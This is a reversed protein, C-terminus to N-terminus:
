RGRRPPREQLEGDVYLDVRENYFALLGEIKPCEPIPFPYHWVVDAVLEGGVRVSHYSAVGKYPCRTRSGSPELLDLRVDEPPIYYRTPLGTEFLLVPRTTEAVTEGAMVVRVHRSSRLADVRTHPDRPHVFIEEDEEFWQDVRDWSFAIHGALRERGAAPREYSWAIGEEVRGGARLTYSAAEGTADRRAREPERELLDMRVDARPLYYVPVRGRELMLLAATTDALWEGAARVRVRRGSREIRIERAREAEAM